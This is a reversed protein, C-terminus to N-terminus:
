SPRTYRKAYDSDPYKALAASHIAEALEIATPCNHWTTFPLPSAVVGGFISVGHSAFAFDFGGDGHTTITVSIEDEYLRQLVDELHLMREMIVVAYHGVMECLRALICRHGRDGRTVILFHRLECPSVANSNRSSCGGVQPGTARTSDYADRFLM